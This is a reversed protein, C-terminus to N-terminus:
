LIKKFDKLNTQLSIFSSGGAAHYTARSFRVQIKKIKLMLGYSFGAGGGSTELRLDQKRKHNYGFLLQFHESLLLEAGFNIRKLVDDIAGTSRGSTEEDLSLNENVLNSTTLTFRLPMYEPKFSTGLIVDFPLNASNIEDDGSLEFGMNEFVMGFTWNKNVHFLGGIDFSLASSSYTDISSNVFKMNMGLTFPGLRHAKGVSFVYDHASFTGLVEGTDDTMEFSGLDIYNLGVAISKINKVDFVYALSYVSADAFYPNIHAFVNGSGVSDLVAPNEFFQSVDGDSLSVTSGALAASRPNTTLNLSQYSLQGGIQAFSCFPLIGFIFLFNRM